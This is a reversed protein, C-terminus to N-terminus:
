PTQQKFREIDIEYHKLKRWLTTRGIQLNEAMQTVHGECAYAARIIAEREADAITLVPQAQPGNNTLVRGSVITHPLHQRRIVADPSHSM